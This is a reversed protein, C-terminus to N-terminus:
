GDDNVCFKTMEHEQKASSPSIYLSRYRVHVAMTRSLLRKTQNRERQRRRRPKSLRGLIEEKNFERQHSFLKDCLDCKFEKVGTHKVGHRKLYAKDKFAADCVSCKHPREDSHLRKHKRLFSTTLCIQDCQDCQYMKRCDTFMTLCEYCESLKRSSIFSIPM